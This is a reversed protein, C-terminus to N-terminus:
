MSLKSSSVCIYKQHSDDKAISRSVVHAGSNEGNLAVHFNTEAYQKGHTMIKEHIVLTANAARAADTKRIASDVGRIQATEMTMSDSPEVHSVSEVPSLYKDQTQYLAGPAVM